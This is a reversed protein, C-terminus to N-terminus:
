IDKAEGAEIAKIDRSLIVGSLAERWIAMHPMQFHAALAAWSDWYELVVIQDPALVDFGYRYDICGREARSATIMATMKDKLSKAAGPKLTAIGSVIIM